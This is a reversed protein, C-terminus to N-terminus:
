ETFDVQLTPADVFAIQGDPGAPVSVKVIGVVLSAGHRKTLRELAKEFAVTREEITQPGKAAPTKKATM